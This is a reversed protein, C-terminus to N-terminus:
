YKADFHNPIIFLYQFFLIQSNFIFVPFKLNSQITIESTTIMLLLKCCIISKMQSSWFKIPLKVLKTTWYHTAIVPLTNPTRIESFIAYRQMRICSVNIVSIMLRIVHIIRIKNRYMWPACVGSDILSPNYDRVRTSQPRDKDRLWM